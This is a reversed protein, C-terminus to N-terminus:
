EAPQCGCGCGDDIEGRRQVVNHDSLRWAGVLVKGQEIATKLRGLTTESVYRTVECADFYTPNM